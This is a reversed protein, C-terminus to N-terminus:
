PKAAVSVQSPVKSMLSASVVTFMVAVGACTVAVASPSVKLMVNWVGIVKVSDSSSGSASM